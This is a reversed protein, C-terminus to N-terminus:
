VPAYHTLSSAGCLHDFHVPWVQLIHHGHSKIRLPPAHTGRWPKLRDRLDESDEAGISAASKMRAGSVSALRKSLAGARRSLMVAQWLVQISGRADWSVALEM